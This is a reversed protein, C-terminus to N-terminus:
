KKISSGSKIKKGKPEPPEIEDSNKIIHARAYLYLLMLIATFTGTALRDLTGIFAEKM